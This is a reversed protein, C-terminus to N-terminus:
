TGGMQRAAFQEVSTLTGPLGEGIASMDIADGKAVCMMLGAFSRQMGDTAANAQAKLAEVPVTTTALPHGAARSFIDRAERQSIARPGGIELVANRAAPATLSAVAFAAVDAASVYSVPEDGSGYLTVTGSGPDFGVAPSLWVEMFCSPRLVTYAMGSDMLRREVARKARELPFDLDLNASFSTYVFHGVGARAAADILASVGALDTIEIDNVGPEYTFPMSSVTCIVADVGECAVVLSAPDRVDAVVTQLGMGELGAVKEPSSTARVMARAPTGAGALAACVM